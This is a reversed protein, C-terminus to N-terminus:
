ATSPCPNRFEVHYECYVRWKPLDSATGAGQYSLKFVCGDESAKVANSVFWNRRMMSQRNAILEGTRYAPLSISPVMQLIQGETSPSNGPEYDISSVLTASSTTAGMGVFVVKALTCRYNDYVKGLADLVMMGSSGPSFELTLVPVPTSSGPAQATITTWYERNKLTLTGASSNVVEYTLRQTRIIGSGPIQNPRPRRRIKRRLRTRKNKPM